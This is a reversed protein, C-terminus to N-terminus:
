RVKTLQIVGYIIGILGCILAGFCIYRGESFPTVTVSLGAFFLLVSAVLIKLARSKQSRVAESVLARAEAQSLGTSVVEAILDQASRGQQVQSALYV